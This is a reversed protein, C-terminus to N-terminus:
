RKFHQLFFWVIWSEQACEYLLLNKKWPSWSVTMCNNQTSCMRIISNTSRENKLTIPISDYLEDKRLVIMYHFHHQDRLTILFSDCLEAARLVSGHYNLHSRGLHDPSFWVICSNRLVSVLYILFTCGNVKRSCMWMIYTTSIKWISWSLIVCSLKGSYMWM